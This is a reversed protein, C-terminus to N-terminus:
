ALRWTRKSLVGFELGATLTSRDSLVMQVHASLAALTTTGRHSKLPHTPAAVVIMAVGDLPEFALGNIEQAFPGAIGFSVQGALVPQLVAGLAETSLRLAIDFFKEQFTV